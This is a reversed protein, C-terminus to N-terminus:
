KNLYSSQINKITDWKCKTSGYPLDCLVLDVSDSPIEKMRNLCDGYLLTINDSKYDELTQKEIEKMINEREQAKSM